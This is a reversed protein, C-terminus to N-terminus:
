EPISFFFNFHQSSIAWVFLLRKEIKGQKGRYILFLGRKTNAMDEYCKLIKKEIGLHFNNLIVQEINRMFHSSGFFLMTLYNFLPM